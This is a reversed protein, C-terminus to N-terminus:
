SSKFGVYITAPIPHNDTPTAVMDNIEPVTYPGFSVPTTASYGAPASVTVTLTDGAGCSTDANIQAAGASDTTRTEPTAQAPFPQSHQLAVGAGALGADGSNQVGDGNSDVFAMVNVQYVCTVSNIGTYAQGSTKPGLVVLATIIVVVVIIVGLIGAIIKSRRSQM